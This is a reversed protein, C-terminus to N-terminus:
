FKLQFGLRFDRGTAVFEVPRRSDGEFLLYPEATLNRVEFFLEFRRSFAVEIFADLTWRETVWRDGTSRAATPRGGFSDIFADTYEALLYAFIGSRQYFIALNARKRPTELLPTERPTGSLTTWRQSSSQYIASGMLGFGDLPAPLFDARQFFHLKVGHNRGSEAQLFSRARYVRPASDFAARYLILDAHRFIPGQHHDHFLALSVFNGPSSEWDLALLLHRIKNAKLNPNGSDLERERGRDGNVALLPAQEDIRPRQLSHSAQFRAILHPVPQYRVQVAPLLHNHSRKVQQPEQVAIVRGSDLFPNGTKELGNWEIHNARYTGDTWESRLGGSITWPGTEWSELWYAGTIREDGSFDERASRFTSELEAFFFQGPQRLDIARMAAADVSPGFPYGAVNPLLPGAADALTLTNANGRDHRQYSQNYLKRALQLQAGAQWHRGQEARNRASGISLQLNRWDLLRRNDEEEVDRIRFNDAAFLDVGSAPEPNAIEPLKSGSRTQYSFGAVGPVNGFRRYEFESDRRQPELKERRAFQLALHVDLGNSLEHRLGADVGWRRDLEMDDKLKRELRGQNQRLSASEVLGDREIIDQYISNLAAADWDIDYELGRRQEHDESDMYVTRLWARTQRQGRPQWDFNLGYIFRERHVALDRIEFEDLFVPSTPNGATDTSQAWEIKLAESGFTRDQQELYVFVGFEHHEGFPIGLRLRNRWGLRNDVDDMIDFYEVRARVSAFLTDYDLGSRNSMKVTGALRQSKQESGLYGGDPQFIGESRDDIFEGGSRAEQDPMPPRDFLLREALDDPVLRLTFPQKRWLWLNDPLDATFSEPRDIEENMIRAPLPVAMVVSWALLLYAAKM